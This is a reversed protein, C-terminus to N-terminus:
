NALGSVYAYPSNGKLGGYGYTASYSKSGVPSRASINSAEIGYDYYAHDMASGFSGSLGSRGWGSIRTDRGNLSIPTARQSYAPNWNIAGSYKSSHSGKAALANNEETFKRTEAEEEIARLDVGPEKRTTPLDFMTTAHVESGGGGGNEISTINPISTPEGTSKDKGENGEVIVEPTTKGTPMEAEQDVMAQFKAESNPVDAVEETQKRAKAAKALRAQLLSTRCIVAGVSWPELEDNGSPSPPPESNRMAMMALLPSQDPLNEM